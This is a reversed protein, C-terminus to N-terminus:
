RERGRGRARITSTSALTLARQWAPQAKASLGAQEYVRGLALAERASSAGGAGGSVLGLLHATLGALSLLDLRNHELVGSLVRADGSRVFHFYRAPVEYGAVDDHRGAGLM